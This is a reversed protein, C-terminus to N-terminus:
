RRSSEGNRARIAGDKNAEKLRTPELRQRRQSRRHLINGEKWGYELSTKGAQSWRIVGNCRIQSFNLNHFYIIRPNNEVTSNIILNFFGTLM